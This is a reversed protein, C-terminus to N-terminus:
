CITSQSGLYPNLKWVSRGTGTFGGCQPLLPEASEAKPGPLHPSSNWSSWSWGQLGRYTIWINQAKTEKATCASLVHRLAMEGCCASIAVCIHHRYLLALPILGRTSVGSADAPVSSRRVWPRPHSCPVLQLCRATAAINQRQAFARVLREKARGRNM